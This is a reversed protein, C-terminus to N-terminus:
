RTLNLGPQVPEAYRMFTTDLVGGFYTMDRYSDAM